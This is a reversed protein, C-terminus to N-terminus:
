PIKKAIKLVIYVVILLGLVGIGWYLTTIKGDQVSITKDRERVIQHVAATDAILKEKDAQLAVVRATNEVTKVDRFTDVRPKAPPCDGKVMFPHAAFSDILAKRVSDSTAAKLLAVVDATINTTSQKPTPDEKGPIYESNHGTQPPFQTACKSAFEEVNNAFYTNAATKAKEKQKAAKRAQRLQTNCSSVLLIAILLTLHKKMVLTNAYKKLSLIRYVIWDNLMCSNRYLQFRQCM